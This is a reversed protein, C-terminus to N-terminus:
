CTKNPLPRTNRFGRSPIGGHRIPVFIRDRFEKIPFPKLEECDYMMPEMLIPIQLNRIAYSFSDRVHDGHLIDSTVLEAYHKEQIRAAKDYLMRVSEPLAGIGFGILFPGLEKVMKVFKNRFRFKPLMAHERPTLKGGSLSKNM